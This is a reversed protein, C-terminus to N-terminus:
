MKKCLTKSIIDKLVYRNNRVFYSTHPIVGPISPILLNKDVDFSKLSGGVPDGRAYVNIWLQINGLKHAGAYHSISLIHDAKKLLWLPSGFTFLNTIFIDRKKRFFDFLVDYAIVTGWSHSIISLIGKNDIKLLPKKLREKIDNRLNKNVLYIVFDALVKRLWDTIRIKRKASDQLLVDMLTSYLKDNQPVLKEKAKDFVDQWYVEIFRTKNSCLFVKLNKQWEKSYGPKQQGIGHVFLITGVNKHHLLM